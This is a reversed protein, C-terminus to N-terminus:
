AARAIQPNKRHWEAVANNASRMAARAWELRDRRKALGQVRQPHKREVSARWAANAFDRALGPIPSRVLAAIIDEHKGEYMARAYKLRTEPDLENFWRRREVDSLAQVINTPELAPVKFVEKEVDEIQSAEATLVGELQNLAGRVPEWAGALKAARGDNSLLRDEALRKAESTVDELRGMLAMVGGYIQDTHVAGTAGIPEREVFAVPECGIERLSIGRIQRPVTPPRAQLVDDPVSVMMRHLIAEEAAVTLKPVTEM